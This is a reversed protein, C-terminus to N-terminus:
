FLGLSLLKPRVRSGHYWRFESKVRCEDLVPLVRVSVKDQSLPPDGNFGVIMETWLESVAEFYQNYLNAGVM